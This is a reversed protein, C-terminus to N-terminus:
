IRLERYRDLVLSERGEYTFKEKLRGSKIFHHEEDTTLEADEDTASTDSQRKVPKGSAKTKRPVPIRPLGNKRRIKNAERISERQAEVEQAEAYAV